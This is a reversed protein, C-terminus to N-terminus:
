DNTMIKILDAACYIQRATLLTQMHILLYFQVDILSHNLVDDIRCMIGQLVDRIQRIRVDVINARNITM